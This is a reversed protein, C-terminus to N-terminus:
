YGHHNLGWDKKSYKLCLSSFLIFPSFIFIGRSPSLLNGYFAEWFHGGSLRSPLYYDPLIQGFEFTSFAVFGSLLILLLLGTKYALFRHYSFFYILVVPILLAMTPRCLYAAFLTLSILPWIQSSNFKTAMIVLYIALLAFLVAFNHSWLAAGSTSAFSSGFWFVTAVTLANVPTLFILALKLLTLFTLISTIITIITQVFSESQTMELGFCKAIAVFPLSALPTGIPFYNYYHGNKKYITYGYKSLIEAGYHDLKITHHTLLAETVLLTSRPDSDTAKNRAFLVVLLISVIIILVAFKIKNSM